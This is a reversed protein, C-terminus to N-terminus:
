TTTTTTPAAKVPKAFVRAAVLAATTDTVKGCTRTQVDLRDGLMLESLTVQKGLRRIETNADVQVTVTQGKYVSAHRNVRKVDMTFSLKDTAVSTLTGKLILAFRPRCIKQGPTTTRANTTTTDTAKVPKTVPAAIALSATLGAVLAAALAVRFKM